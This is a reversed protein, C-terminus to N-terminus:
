NPNLVALKEEVVMWIAPSMTGFQVPELQFIISHKDGGSGVKWPETKSTSLLTVRHLDMSKFFKTYRCKQFM